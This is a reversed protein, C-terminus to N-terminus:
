WLGSYSRTSEFSKAAASVGDAARGERVYTCVCACVCPRGVGLRVCPRMCVREQVCTVAVRSPLRSPCSVRPRGARERMLPLRVPDQTSFLLGLLHLLLFSHDVIYSPLLSLSSAIRFLFFPGGGGM